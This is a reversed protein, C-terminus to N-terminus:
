KKTDIFHSKTTTQAYQSIAKAGRDQKAIDLKMKERINQLEVSNEDEQRIIKDIVIHIDTLIENAKIKNKDEPLLDNFYDFSILERIATIQSLIEDKQEIIKELFDIDNINIIKNEDKVLAYFTNYHEHLTQLKYVESTYEAEADGTEIDGTELDGTELDGTEIEVTEQRRDGAEQYGKMFLKLEKNRKAFLLRGYEILEVTEFEEQNQKEKDDSSKRKEKKKKQDYEHKASEQRSTVTMSNTASIRIFDSKEM